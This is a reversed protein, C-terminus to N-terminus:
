NHSAATMPGASKARRQEIQDVAALLRPEKEFARLLAVRAYDDISKSVIAAKALPQSRAAAIAALCFLRVEPRHSQLAFLPGGHCNMLSMAFTVARMARRLQKPGRSRAACELMGAGRRARFILKGSIQEERYKGLTQVLRTGCVQCDFAWARRWHKLSLGERACQPCHQFPIQATLLAERPTRTPFTLSRVIDPDIRTANAIKQVAAADVDFDLVTGHATDIKIHALLEADNCYNAAALRSLWGSLLEDPLPAVTKPLPHPKM